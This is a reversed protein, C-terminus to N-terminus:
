RASRLAHEIEAEAIRAFDQETVRKATDAMHLKPAITVSRTLVYLVRTVAAKARGVQQLILKGKKFVKPKNLLAKPRNAKTIVENKNRRVEIPVALRSGSTSTKTGGDEFKALFNRDPHVRVAAELKSKTAFDQGPKRYITRKVFDPRRLTFREGLQNQVTQQTKNALANLTRSLAFPGQRGIEDFMRRAAEEGLVEIRDIV